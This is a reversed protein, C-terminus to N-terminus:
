TRTSSPRTRALLDRRRVREPLLVRGRHVDGPRRLRGAEVGEAVEPQAARGPDEHNWVDDPQGYAKKVDLGACFARDGAARLVVANVAPDAKIRQWASRIEECMERDFANLADPRDLTITAVRDPTTEYRITTTPESM